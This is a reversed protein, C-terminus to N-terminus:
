PFCFWILKVKPLWDSFDLFIKLIDKASQSGFTLSIQNQKGYGADYEGSNARLEFGDFDKKTIINIVGAVADSGYISSAGDKLIEVRQIISSPISFM